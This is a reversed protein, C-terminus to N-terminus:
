WAKLLSQVRSPEVLAGPPPLRLLGLMFGLQQCSQPTFEPGGWVDTSGQQRCPGRM